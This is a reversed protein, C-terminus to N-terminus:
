RFLSNQDQHKDYSSFSVTTSHGQEKWIEPRAWVLKMTKLSEYNFAPPESSENTLKNM